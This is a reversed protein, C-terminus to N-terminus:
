DPFIINWHHDSIDVRFHRLCQLLRLGVKEPLRGLPCIRNALSGSLLELTDIERIQPLPIFTDSPFLTRWSAPIFFVKRQPNCGSKADQYRISQSTTILFLCPNELCTSNLVIIYKDKKTGDEFEFDNYHLVDGFDPM